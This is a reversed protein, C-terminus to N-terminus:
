NAKELREYLAIEGDVVKLTLFENSSQMKVLYSTKLNRQVETVLDINYDYYSRKVLHRLEMPMEAESYYKLTYERQGKKDYTSRMKIGRFKFYVSTGNNGSVWTVEEASGYTKNFDRAAAVNVETPSLIRYSEHKAPDTVGTAKSSGSSIRAAIDQAKSESSTILFLISLASSFLIKKM